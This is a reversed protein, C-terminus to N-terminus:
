LDTLHEGNLFVHGSVKCTRKLTNTVYCDHAAALGLEKIREPPEPSTIRVEYEIEDFGYGSIAVYHGVVSAELGEIDLGWASSREAYHTTQCLPLGALFDQLAGPHEGRGGVAKGADSYWTLEGSHLEKRLGETYKTTVRITRRFKAKREEEALNETEKWALYAKETLEKLQAPFDM